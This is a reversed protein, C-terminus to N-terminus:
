VVMYLGNHWAHFGKTMFHVNPDMHYAHGKAESKESFEEDEQLAEFEDVDKLKSMDIGSVRQHPIINENESKFIAVCLVAEGTAATFGMVTYHLDTTIAEKTGCFGKEAILRQRGQQKDKKMDTNSGYEDVFLLHYYPAVLEIDTPKGFIGDVSLLMEGKLNYYQNRSIKVAVGSLILENYILNYRKL